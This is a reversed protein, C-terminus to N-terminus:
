LAERYENMLSYLICAYINQIVSVSRIGLIEFPDYVKNEVETTAIRYVLFAVLVWGVLVIVTRNGFECMLMVLLITFCQLASKRRLKPRLLSGRERKRISERQQM